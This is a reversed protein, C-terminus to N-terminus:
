DTSLVRAIDRKWFEVLYTATLSEQQGTNDRIDTLSELSEFENVVWEGNQMRMIDVRLLPAYAVSNTNAEILRAVCKEAFKIVEREDLAFALRGQANVHNVAIYPGLVLGYDNIGIVVKYEQM